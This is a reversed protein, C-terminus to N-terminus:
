IGAGVEGAEGPPERPRPNLGPSVCAVTGDQPGVPAMPWLTLRFPPSRTGNTVLSPTDHACHLVAMTSLFCCSESALCVLTPM